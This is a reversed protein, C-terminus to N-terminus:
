SEGRLAAIEAQLQRIKIADQRASNSLVDYKLQIQDKEMLVDRMDHAYRTAWQDNVAMSAAWAENVLEHYDKDMIVAM